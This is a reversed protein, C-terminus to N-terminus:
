TNSVYKMCFWAPIAKCLLIGRPYALAFNCCEADRKRCHVYGDRQPCFAYFNEFLPLHRFYALCFSYSLDVFFLLVVAIRVHFSPEFMDQFALTIRLYCFRLLIAVHRCFTGVPVDPLIMCLVSWTMISGRLCTHRSLNGRWIKMINKDLTACAPWLHHVNM